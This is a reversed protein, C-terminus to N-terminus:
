RRDIRLQRPTSLTGILLISAKAADNRHCRIAMPQIRMQMGRQLGDGKQAAPDDPIYANGSLAILAEHRWDSDRLSFPLRKNQPPTPPGITSLSSPVRYVIRRLGDTM